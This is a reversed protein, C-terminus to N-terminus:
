VSCVGAHARADALRTGLAGRNYVRDGSFAAETRYCGVLRLGARELAADAQSPSAPVPPKWASVRPLHRLESAGNGPGTHARPHPDTPAAKLAFVRVLWHESTFAEEFLSLSVHKYGVEATRAVDWGFPKGPQGPPLLPAVVYIGSCPAAGSASAPGRPLPM